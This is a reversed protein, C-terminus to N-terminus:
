KENRGEKKRTLIIISIILIVPFVSGARLGIQIADGNAQAIRGVIAPGITGGMDGAMALLAFM